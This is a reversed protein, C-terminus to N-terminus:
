VVVRLQPRLECALAGCTPCVFDATAPAITRVLPGAHGEHLLGYTVCEEWPEYPRSWTCGRYDCRWLHEDDDVWLYKAAHRHPRTPRARVPWGDSTM